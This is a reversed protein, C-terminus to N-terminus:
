LFPPYKKDEILNKRVCPRKLIIQLSFLHTAVNPVYRCNGFVIPCWFVSAIFGINGKVNIKEEKNQLNIVFIGLSKLLKFSHGEAHDQLPHVEEVRHMQNPRSNGHCHEYGHQKDGWTLEETCQSTHSAKQFRLSEQLITCGGVSRKMFDLRKQPQNEIFPQSTMGERAM